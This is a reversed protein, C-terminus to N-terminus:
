TSGARCARLEAELAAIRHQLERAQQWKRALANALQQVEIHDFPKKLVLLNDPNGLDRVTDPWAHDSYATCIVVQMQHDVAWIRKITELGDWGPPMRMDVFAVAFPRNAAVADIVCQLGQQGDYASTLRYPLTHLRTPTGFLEAAEADFVAIDPEETPELIKRYDAHISHLDDIALVHITETSVPNM